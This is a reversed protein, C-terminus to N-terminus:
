LKKNEADEAKKTDETERKTSKTAKVKKTDKTQKPKKAVKTQEANEPEENDEAEAADNEAVTQRDIEQKVIRVANKKPGIRRGMKQTYAKTFEAGVLLIISSYYIWILVLVFSGAAGYTTAINSNKLYISILYEGLSFLVSTVLAGVWVDKWKVKADPLLKFVLAFVLTVLGILIVFTVTQVLYVTAETLIKELLNNFISLLAQIALSVLLIFGLSAVMIFSFLRDMAFKILEKKPKAKVHWINNLAEQINVFVTTASFMLTGIGIVKALIKSEDTRANTVIKRLQVASDEGIYERFIYFVEGEVEAQGFFRGAIFLILVLMAPLSFIMYFAISAGYTMPSDEQFHKVTDKIIEWACKFFSKVRNMLNTRNTTFRFM